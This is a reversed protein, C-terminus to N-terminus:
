FRYKAFFLIQLLDEIDSEINRSDLDYCVEDSQSDRMCVEGTDDVNFVLDLALGLYFDTAVELGMGGELKINQWSSWTSQGSGGQYEVGVSMSSFGFGLGGFLEISGPLTLFRGPLTAFLRITPMLYLSSTTVDTGAEFVSPDATLWGFGVDMYLGLVSNFRYGPALLFAVNPDFHECNADGSEVCINVGAGGMIEFGEVPTREGPRKAASAQMPWALCGLLLIVLFGTRNM